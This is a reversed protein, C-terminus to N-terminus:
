VARLKDLDLIQISRGQVDVLGDKHFKSLMRSVTELKMGLYSGMEDRSMRLNFQTASYGRAQLRQSINLLFSSVREEACMSGLLTLQASDRTIEACMWRHVHRQMSKIDHCLTELMQFPIVCVVSDELAIADCIHRDVAIGDVGLHEGALQFGTIQERGDRLSAVTKLSGAKITYINKFADGARYLAEGRRVKRSTVLMSDLQAFEPLSLGSPMCTHCTACNSCHASDTLRHDSPPRIMMGSKVSNEDFSDVMGAFHVINLSAMTSSVSSMKALQTM